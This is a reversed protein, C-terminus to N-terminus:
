IATGANLYPASDLICFAAPNSGAAKQYILTRLSCRESELELEGAIQEM